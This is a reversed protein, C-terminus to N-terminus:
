SKVKKEEWEVGTVNESDRQLIAASLRDTRREFPLHVEYALEEKTETRLEFALRRKALLEELKPKFAEPHRVKGKLM